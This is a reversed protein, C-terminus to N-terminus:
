LPLQATSGLSLSVITNYRVELQIARLQNMHYNAINILPLWTETKGHNFLM